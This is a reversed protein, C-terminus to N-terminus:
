RSATLPLMDVTGNVDFHTFTGMAAIERFGFM